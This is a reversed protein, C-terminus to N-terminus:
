SAYAVRTMGSAARTMSTLGVDLPLRIPTLSVHAPQDAAAADGKAAVPVIPNTSPV